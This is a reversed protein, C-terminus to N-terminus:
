GPSCLIPARSRPIDGTDWKDPLVLGILPPRQTEPQIHPNTGARPLHLVLSSSLVCDVAQLPVTGRSWVCTWGLLPLRLPKPTIKPYQSWQQGLPSASGSAVVSCTSVSILGLIVSLVLPWVETAASLNLAPPLRNTPGPLLCLLVNHTHSVM